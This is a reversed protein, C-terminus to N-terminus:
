KNGSIIGNAVIYLRNVLHVKRSIPVLLDENIVISKVDSKPFM